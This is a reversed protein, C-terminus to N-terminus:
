QTRMDGWPGWQVLEVALADRLADHMGAAGDGLAEELHTRCSIPHNHHPPPLSADVPKGTVTKSMCM